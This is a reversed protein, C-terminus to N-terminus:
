ELVETTIRMRESNFVANTWDVEILEEARCSFEGFTEAELADLDVALERVLEASVRGTNLYENLMRSASSAVYLARGCEKTTPGFYTM